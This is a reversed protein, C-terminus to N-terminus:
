LILSSNTDTTNASMYASYGIRIKDRLSKLAFTHVSYTHAYEYEVVAEDHAVYPTGVSYELLSHYPIYPRLVGYTCVPWAILASSLPNANKDGNLGRETQEYESSDTSAVIVLSSM